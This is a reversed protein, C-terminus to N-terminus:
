IYTPSNKLSEGCAACSVVGRANVLTCKPCERGGSILPKDESGPKHSKGCMDCVLRESKNHNHYTCYVCEWINMSNDQANYDRSTKSIPSSTDMDRRDDRPVTKFNANSSKTGIKEKAQSTKM